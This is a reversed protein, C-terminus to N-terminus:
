EDQSWIANIHEVAAPAIGVLLVLLGAILFGNAYPDMTLGGGRM